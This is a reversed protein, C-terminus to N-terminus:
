NFYVFLVSESRKKICNRPQFECVVPFQWWSCEDNLWLHFIVINNVHIIEIENPTKEEQFTSSNRKNEIYRILKCTFGFCQAIICIDSSLKTIRFLQDRIEAYVNYTQMRVTARMQHCNEIQTASANCNFKRVPRLNAFLLCLITWNSPKMDSYKHRM